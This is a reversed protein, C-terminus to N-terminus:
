PAEAHEVQVASEADTSKGLDVQKRYVAYLILQVLGLIVGMGNPITIYLNLPHEILGYVMWMIGNLLVFISMPLPMYVVSRTKVVLRMVLLPSFYMCVGAIACLVGTFTERTNTHDNDFGYINLVAVAILIAAAVCMLGMVIVRKKPSSYIIYVCIYLIELFVGIANIILILVAKHVLPSGYILWLACNFLTAIYPYATFEGSSKTKYITWFPRFAPSAFLCISTINGLIGVILQGTNVM